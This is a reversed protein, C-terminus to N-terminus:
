AQPRREKPCGYVGQGWHLIAHWHTPNEPDSVVSNLLRSLNSACTARASKPIHKVIACDVPTFSFTGSAGDVPHPQSSVTSTARTSDSQSKSAQSAVQVSPGLSPQQSGPCLNTRPGHRHVLGDRLHLQFCVSCVGSRKNAQQSLPWWRGQSM